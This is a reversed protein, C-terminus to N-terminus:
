RSRDYPFTPVLFITTWVCLNMSNGLGPCLRESRRQVDRQFGTTMEAFRGGARARDDSRPNM